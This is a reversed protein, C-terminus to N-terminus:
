DLKRILEMIENYHKEVIEPERFQAAIEALKKIVKLIDDKTPNNFDGGVDKFLSEILFLISMNKIDDFEKKSKFKSYEKMQGLVERHANVFCKVIADRVILPTIEKSLDVGYIKKVM